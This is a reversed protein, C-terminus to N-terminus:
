EQEATNKVQQLVVFAWKVSNKTSIKELILTPMMTYRMNLVKRVASEAANGWSWPRHDCCENTHFRVITGLSCFQAWRVFMEPTEHLFPIGIHAGCDPHVYPQLRLGGNVMNHVEGLLETYIVDGTWWSYCRLM